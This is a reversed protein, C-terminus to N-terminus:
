INKKRECKCKTYISAIKNYDIERINVQRKLFIMKKIKINLKLLM